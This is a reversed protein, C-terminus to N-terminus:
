DMFEYDTTGRLGPVSYYAALDGKIMVERYINGPNEAINLANKLSTLTINVPLMNAIETETALDALAV